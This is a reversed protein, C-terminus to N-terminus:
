HLEKYLSMTLIVIRPYLPAVKAFNRLNNYCSYKYNHTAQIRVHNTTITKPHNQIFIRTVTVVTKTVVGKPKTHVM